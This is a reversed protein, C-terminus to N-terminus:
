ANTPLTLHTYSVTEPTAPTTVVDSRFTTVSIKDKTRKSFGKVAPWAQDKATNNAPTPKAVYALCTFYNYLANSPTPFPCRWAM